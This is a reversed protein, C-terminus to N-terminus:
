VEVVGADYPFLYFCHSEGENNWDVWISWAGNTDVEMIKVTGVYKLVDLLEHWFNKIDLEACTIPACHHRNHFLTYYNLENCLLMFYNSQDQLESIWTFFESEAKSEGDADLAPLGNVVNQNLEYLSILTLPTSAMQAKREEFEQQQKALYEEYEEKEMFIAKDSM